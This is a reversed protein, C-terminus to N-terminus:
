GAYSDAARAKDVKRAFARWDSRDWVIVGTMYILLQAERHTETSLGYRHENYLDHLANLAVFDSSEVVKAVAGTDGGPIMGVLYAVAPGLVTLRLVPLHENIYREVLRQAGELDDDNVEAPPLWKLARYQEILQCIHSASAASIVVPHRQSAPPFAPFPPSLDPIYPGNSTLEAEQLEATSYYITLDKPAAM